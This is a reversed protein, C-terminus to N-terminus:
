KVLLEKAKVFGVVPQGSDRWFRLTDYAHNPWDYVDTIVILTDPPINMLNRPNAVTFAHRRPNLNLQRAIQNARSYTPGFVLVNPTM